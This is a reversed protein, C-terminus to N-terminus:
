SAGHGSALGDSKWCFFLIIRLETTGFPSDLKQEMKATLKSAWGVSAISHYEIRSRCLSHFVGAEEVSM